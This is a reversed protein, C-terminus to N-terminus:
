RARCLVSANSEIRSGCSRHRTQKTLLTMSLTMAIFNMGSSVIFAKSMVGNTSDCLEKALKEAADTTFFPLYCYEIQDLQEVIAAKVRANQHGICSVAAGCTADFIKVGTDTVLYNGKGSVIKPPQKSIHGHHIVRSEEVGKVTMSNGRSMVNVAGEEDVIKDGVRELLVM